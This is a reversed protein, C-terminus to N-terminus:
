RSQDNDWTVERHGLICSSPKLSLLPVPYQTELVADFITYSEFGSELLGSLMFKRNSPFVEMVHRNHDFDFIVNRCVLNISSGNDLLSWDMPFLTRAMAIRTTLVPGPDAQM